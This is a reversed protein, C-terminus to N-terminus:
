SERFSRTLTRALPATLYEIFTRSETAVYVDAALGPTIQIPDLDPTAERAIKLRALYYGEGTRADELRDASVYIVRAAVSPTERPDFSSLNIWARQGVHVDDIDQPRLRVEAVLAAEQPVITMIERGAGIVAGPNYKSLQIVTGAAPARVVLRQTVDESSKLQETVSARETRVQSLQASAERVRANKAQVIRERIEAISQKAQAIAAGLQGHRGKLDAESRKLALVHNKRTLGKALLAEFAQREEAILDIQLSTAERQIAHGAIQEELAAIQQDLIGLEAHHKRLGALFETEQDEILTALQAAPHENALSSFELETAGNREASARVAVADLAALQTTLHDHRSKAATGDLILLPQGASVVQGEEVLVQQVIGGELHQVIKNSGSVVVKGQAIIAGGIPAIAAWAVFGGVGTLLMAIGAAVPLAIDTKVGRHWIM